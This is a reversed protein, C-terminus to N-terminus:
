LSVYRAVHTNYYIIQSSKRIWFGGLTAVSNCLQLKATAQCEGDCLSSLTLVLNECWFEM